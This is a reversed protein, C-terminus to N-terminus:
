GPSRQQKAVDRTKGNIRTLLLWRASWGSTFKVALGWSQMLARMPDHRSNRRVSKDHLRARLGKASPLAQGALLGWWNRKQGHPNNSEASRTPLGFSLTTVRRM